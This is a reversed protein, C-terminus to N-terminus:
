ETWPARLAITLEVTRRIEEELEPSPSKAYREVLAELREDAEGSEVVFDFFSLGESKELKIQGLKSRLISRNSKVYAAAFLKLSETLSDSTLVAALVSSLGKM